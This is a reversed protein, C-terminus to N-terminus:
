SAKIYFGNDELYDINEFGSNKLSAVVEEISYKNFIGKAAFKKSDLYNKHQMYFCFVGDTKLLNKIKSFAVELNSWFYIVNLCFILNYTRNEFDVNLFDGYELKINGTKIFKKNRNKATRYMLKSFDIGEITIDKEKLAIESIGVGPGYGIELVCDGDTINLQALLKQYISKNVKIMLKSALRGLIGSPRKLQLGFKKLM